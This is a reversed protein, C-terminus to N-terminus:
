GVEEPFLVEDETVVAHMPHDHPEMPLPDDSIQVEYALGFLVAKTLHPLLRDFYGSGFGLRGGFEDFAVGPLLALDIDGPDILHREHADPEPIGQLTGPRLDELRKLEALLTEEKRQPDFLPVAVRKGSRLAEEILARTEVEPGTSVYTLVVVAKKWAPQDIIHHVIAASARSRQNPTLAKRRKLFRERFETKLSAM